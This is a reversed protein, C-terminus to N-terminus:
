VPKTKDIKGRKRWKRKEKISFYSILPTIVIAPTFWLWIPAEDLAFMQPAGFVVFATVTAIGCSLMGSLHEVVWSKRFRPQRWWYTLQSLALFVGLLPFWTLLSDAVMFGYVSMIIASMFLVAPILWDIGHRHKGRHNKFRLVRLGYMATSFSLIAIFILFISFSFQEITVTPDFWIRYLALHVSTGSIIFMSITFIWGTFRHRRSGKRFFLPMWLTFLAVFGAVVHIILSFSFM